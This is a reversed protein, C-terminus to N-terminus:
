EKFIFNNTGKQYSPQTCMEHVSEIPSEVARNFQRRQQDTFCQDTYIKLCDVFLNWTNCVQDIDNLNDPFVLHAEKVLPDAIKICKDYETRSCDMRANALIPLLTLSLTRWM